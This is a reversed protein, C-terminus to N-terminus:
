PVKHPNPKLVRIFSFRREMWASFVGILPGNIVACVVTGWNVGRFRFLGFFIFSLCVALLCSAIDYGTKFRSVKIGLRASVELVVLEYVAPSIYTHFLLAVGFSGLFLGIVFYIIPPLGAAKDFNEVGNMWLDLVFGYFVATVFSFLYRIRFRKLFLVMILLLAGQLGYEAMGFTFFPYSESLKLYVLYAPAIVMSVGYNARAMLSASLALMVVGLVYALEQPFHRKQNM